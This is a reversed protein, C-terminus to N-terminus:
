LTTRDSGGLRPIGEFLDVVLDYRVKGDEPIRLEGLGFHRLLHGFSIAQDKTWGENYRLLGGISNALGAVFEDKPFLDSNELIVKCVARSVEQEDTEPRYIMRKRQSDWEKNM